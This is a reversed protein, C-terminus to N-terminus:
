KDFLRSFGPYPMLPMIEFDMLMKKVLPLTTVARKAAEV